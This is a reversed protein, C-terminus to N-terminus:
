DWLVKLGPNVHILWSLGAPLCPAQRPFDSESLKIFVLDPANEESLLQRVVGECKEIDERSPTLEVAIRKEAMAFVSKSRM